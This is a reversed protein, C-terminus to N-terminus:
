LLCYSLLVMVLQKDLASFCGSGSGGAVCALSVEYDAEFTDIICSLEIKGTIQPPIPAHYLLNDRCDQQPSVILHGGCDTVEAGRVLLSSPPPALILLPPLKASSTTPSQPYWCQTRPYYIGAQWQRMPILSPPSWRGFM